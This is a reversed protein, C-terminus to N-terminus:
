LPETTNTHTLVTYVAQPLVVPSRGTQGNTRKSNSWSKDTYVM